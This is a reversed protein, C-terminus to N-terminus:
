STRTSRRTRSGRSRRSGPSWSPRPRAGAAEPPTSSASPSAFRRRRTAGSATSAARAMVGVRVNRFRAGSVGHGVHGTEAPSARATTRRAACGGARPTASPTWPGGSSTPSAPTRATASCSGAQRGPDRPMGRDLVPLEPAQRRDVVSTPRVSPRRRHRRRHGRLDDRRASAPQCEDDPHAPHPELRRGADDRRGAGSGHRRRRSSSTAWSSATASSPYRQAAVGEDDWGFTGLGGPVTADATLNVLDSGYRFDGLMDPTLFSTGAYAAETGFVRDLETPHGCSEHVQMYLQSPHLVVTRLGAPLPPRSLLQRGRERRARCQGRPRHRRVPGYGASAWPRRQGSLKRRQHEDGDIANAELGAGVHTIVQETFSGDSSAFTKWERQAAYISESFAIGQVRNLARDAALFDAIKRDLPVVFPDEEVPTEFNGHAPPRDDLVVPHRLATASAKAIRVAEAATRDAEATSLHHSAAFGWAGDVLVRVGFGESEGSQVGEVRTSKINISEELRRIVRIDAYTAGLATATDLARNTLDRM